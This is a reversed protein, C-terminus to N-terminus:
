IRTNGTSTENANGNTRKTTDVKVYLAFCYLATLYNVGTYVLRSILFILIKSPIQYGAITWVMLLFIYTYPYTMHKM